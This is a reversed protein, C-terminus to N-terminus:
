ELEKAAATLDIDLPEQRGSELWHNFAEVDIYVRGGIRVLAVGIGNQEAHFIWWRLQGVSLAPSSAALQQVSRLNKHDVM